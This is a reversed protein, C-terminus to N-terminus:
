RFKSLENTYVEIRTSQGNMIKKLMNEHSQLKDLNENIVENNKKHNISLNDLIVKTRQLMFCVLHFSDEWIVRETSSHSMDREHWLSVNEFSVSLNSRVLRALGCLNESLIPNNKHPMASSGCQYQSRIESMEDIGSLASLRIQTAFREIVSATKTLAVMFDIYHHRPIVQTVIKPIKLDWSQIFRTQGPWKYQGTPGHAKGQLGDAARKLDKKCTKLEDLFLLLRNQLNVIEAYQGHTRGAIQGAWKYNENLIKDILKIVWDLCSKIQYSSITDLVDSSTLGYHLYKALEYNDELHLDIYKLVAVLEHKTEKEIEKIESVSAEIDVEVPKGLLYELYKLSYSIYLSYRIKDGWLCKVFPDSYREIM